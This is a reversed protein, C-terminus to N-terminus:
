KKKKDEKKETVEVKNKEQDEIAILISKLSQEVQVFAPVENAQLQVRSLFALANQVVQKNM